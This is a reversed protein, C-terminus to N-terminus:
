LVGSRCALPLYLNPRTVMRLWGSNRCAREQSRFVRGALTDINTKTVSFSKGFRGGRFGAGCCVDGLAEPITWWKWDLSDGCRLVVERASFLITAAIGCHQADQNVNIRAPFDVGPAKLVDRGDERIDSGVLTKISATIVELLEIDALRRPNQKETCVIVNRSRVLNVTSHLAKSSCISILLSLAKGDM